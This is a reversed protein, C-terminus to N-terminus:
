YSLLIPFMFFAATKGKKINKLNAVLDAFLAQSYNFDTNTLFAYGLSQIKLPIENFSTTKNSLCILLTHFLFKMPPPFNAKFMTAKNLQGDYGRETLETQIENKPFSTKGVLDNVGFTTSITTPTIAVSEGGVKSTISFAVNNQEEINTNAWFDRLTEQYIPADATLIAKYKSSTLVDMMPHYLSNKETKEFIALYNHHKKMILAM